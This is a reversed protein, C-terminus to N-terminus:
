IEPFISFTKSACIVLFPKKLPDRQLQKQLSNIDQKQKQTVQRRITPTIKVGRITRNCRIHM